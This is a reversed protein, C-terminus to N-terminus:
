VFHLSVVVISESPYGPSGELNVHEHDACPFGGVVRACEIPPEGPNCSFGETRLRAAAGAPSMGRLRLGDVWTRFHSEDRFRHTSCGYVGVLLALVLFRAICPSLRRIGTRDISGPIIPNM